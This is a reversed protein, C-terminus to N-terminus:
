RNLCWTVSIRPFVSAVQNYTLFGAEQMSLAEPAEPTLGLARIRTNNYLDPSKHRSVHLDGMKCYRCKSVFFSMDALM